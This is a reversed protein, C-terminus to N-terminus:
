AVAVGPSSYRVLNALVQPNKNQPSNLSTLVSTVSECVLGPVRLHFSVLQGSEVVQKLAPFDATSLWSLESVRGQRTATGLDEHCSHKEIFSM